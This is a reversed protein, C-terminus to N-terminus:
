SQRGKPAVQKWGTADATLLPFADGKVKLGDDALEAGLIAITKARTLAM